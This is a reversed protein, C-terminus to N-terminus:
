PPCCLTMTAVSNGQCGLTSSTSGFWDTVVQSNSFRRSVATCVTAFTWTQWTPFIGVAFQNNPCTVTTFAGLANAAVFAGTVYTCTTSSFTGPPGAPGIPGQPGIAGVLGIPGQPGVDGTLGQPGTAGVPGQPGQM